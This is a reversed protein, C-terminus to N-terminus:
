IMLAVFPSILGPPSNEYLLSEWFQRWSFDVTSYFEKDSDLGSEARLNAAQHNSTINRIFAEDNRKATKATMVSVM